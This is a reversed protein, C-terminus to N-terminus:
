IVLQMKQTSIYEKKCKNNTLIKPFGAFMFFIM